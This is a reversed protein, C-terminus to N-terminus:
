LLDEDDVFSGWLRRWQWQRGAERGNDRNIKHVKPNKKQTPTIKMMLHIYETAITEMLLSRCMLNKCDGKHLLFTINKWLMKRQAITLYKKFSLLFTLTLTSSFFLTLPFPPSFTNIFSLKSLKGLRKLIIEWKYLSENM